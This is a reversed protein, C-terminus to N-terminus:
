RYSLEAVQKNVDHWMLVRFIFSSTAITLSGIMTDNFQNVEVVSM